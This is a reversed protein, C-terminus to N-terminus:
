SQRYGDGVVRNNAPDIAVWGVEPLWFEVWTHNGGYGRLTPDTVEGSILRAPIQGARLIAIFLHAFDQVTGKKQQLMDEIRGAPAIVFAYRQYIFDALISIAEWGGAPLAFRRALLQVEPLFPCDETEALWLSQQQQLEEVAVPSPISAALRESMSEELPVGHAVAHSAIRGAATAAWLDRPKTEISTM